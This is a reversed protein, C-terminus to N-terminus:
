PRNGTLGNALRKTIAVSNISVIDSIAIPRGDTTLVMRWFSPLPTKPSYTRPRPIIKASAKRLCITIVDVYFGSCM